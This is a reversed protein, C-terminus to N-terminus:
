WYLSIGQVGRSLRVMRVASFMAVATAGRPFVLNRGTRRYIGIM